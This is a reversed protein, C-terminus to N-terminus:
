FNDSARKWNRIDQLVLDCVVIESYTNMKEISQKQDRFTTM